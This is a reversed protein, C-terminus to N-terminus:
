VLQAAAERIRATITAPDAGNAALAAAHLAPGFRLQVPSNQYGPWMVQMMAAMRERQALDPKRQALPNRYAAPSFVGSVIVPVIHMDPMLRALLGTSEIWSALSARADDRRIGPDPEIKGAPFTIVARGAKLENIVSRFAGMRAGADQQVFVLKPTLNRLAMLFPRHAAVIRLDDRPIAAFLNITDSLGPHNSVILVPGRAPIHEAGTVTVPGAFQGAAWASATRLGEAGVQRDFEFMQRAFRKAPWLFVADLVASRKVGLSEYIDGLNIEVLQDFEAKTPM